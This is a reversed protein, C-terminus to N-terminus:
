DGSRLQGVARALPRKDKRDFRHLGDLADIRDSAGGGADPLRRAYSLRLGKDFARGGAKTRPLPHVTAGRRAFWTYLDTKVARSLYHVTWDLPTFGPWEFLSWKPKAPLVRILRTLLDPGFERELELWIWLGPSDNLESYYLGPDIGKSQRRSERELASALRDARADFGAWRMATLGAFHNFASRGLISPRVLYLGQIPLVEILRHGLAFAVEDDPAGVGIRILRRDGPGHWLVGSTASRNLQVHWTHDKEPLLPRIQKLVKRAIRTFGGAQRSLSAPYHIKLNSVRRTKDPRGISYPLAAIRKPRPRPALHDLLRRCLIGSNLFSVDGVAVVRGRGFAVSVAAAEGTKRHSILTAAKRRARVPVWRHHFVDADHVGRQRLQRHVRASSQPYGRVLDLDPATRGTADEPRVFDIGFRRAVAAVAMRELPQRAYRQFV